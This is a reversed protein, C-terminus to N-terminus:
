GAKRGFAARRPPAAGPERAATLPEVEGAAKKELYRSLAEDPDFPVNSDEDADGGGAAGGRPGAPNALFDLAADADGWKAWSKSSLLHWGVVMAGVFSILANVFNGNAMAMLSALLLGVALLSQVLVRM